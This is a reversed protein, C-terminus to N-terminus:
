LCQNIYCNLETDVQRLSKGVYIMHSEMESMKNVISALKDSLARARQKSSTSRVSSELQVMAEEGKTLVSDKCQEYLGVANNFRKTNTEKESVEGCSEIYDLKGSPMEIDEPDACTPVTGVFDGIEELHVAHIGTDKTIEPDSILVSYAVAKCTYELWCSYTRLNEFADDVMESGPKEQQILDSLNSSWKQYSESMQREWDAVCQVEKTTNGTSSLLNNQWVFFILTLTITTAIISILKKMNTIKNTKIQYIPQRM